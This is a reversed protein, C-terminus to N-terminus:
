QPSELELETSTMHTKDHVFRCQVPKRGTSRNDRGLMGGVAGSEYENIMMVMMMM